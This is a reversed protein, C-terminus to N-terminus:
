LIVISILEGADDSKFRFVEILNETKGLVSTCQNIWMWFRGLAQETEKMWHRGSFTIPIPASESRVGSCSEDPNVPKNYQQYTNIHQGKLECNFYFGYFKVVKLCM